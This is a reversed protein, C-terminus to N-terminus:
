KKDKASGIVSLRTGSLQKMMSQREDVLAQYDIQKLACDRLSLFNLAFTGSALKSASSSLM